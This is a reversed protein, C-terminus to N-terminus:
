PTRAGEPLWPEDWVDEPYTDMIRLVEEYAELTPPRRKSLSAPTEGNRLYWIASKVDMRTCDLNPRGGLMGPEAYIHETGPLRWAGNQCHCPYPERVSNGNKLRTHRWLFTAGRCQNCNDTGM